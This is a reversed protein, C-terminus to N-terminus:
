FAGRALLTNLKVLDYLWCTSLLGINLLSSVQKEGEIGDGARQIILSRRSHSSTITRSDDESEEELTGLNSPSLLEGRKSNKRALLNQVNDLKKEQVTGLKLNDAALPQAQSNLKEDM